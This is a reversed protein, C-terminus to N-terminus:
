EAILQSIHLPPTDDTPLHLQLGCPRDHLLKAVHLWMDTTDIFGDHLTVVHSATTDPSCPRATWTLILRDGECPHSTVVVEETPDDLLTARIFHHEDDTASQPVFGLRELTHKVCAIDINQNLLEDLPSDDVTTHCHHDYYHHYCDVQM